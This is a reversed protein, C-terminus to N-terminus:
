TGHYKEWAALCLEQHKAILRVARGVDPTRMGRAQRLSPAEEANGINVLAEKGAYVVHVHLPPHDDTRVIVIFGAERHITPM